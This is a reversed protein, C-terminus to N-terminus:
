LFLLFRQLSPCGCDIFFSVIKSIAIVERTILLLDKWYIDKLWWWIWARLKIVGFYSKFGSEGINRPVVPSSRSYRMSFLISIFFYKPLFALSFMLYHHHGSLLFLGSVVSLLLYIVARSLSFYLSLKKLKSKSEHYKTCYISQM